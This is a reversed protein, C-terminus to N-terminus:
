KGREKSNVATKAGLSVPCYHMIYYYLLDLSPAAIGYLSQDMDWVMRSGLLRIEILEPLKKPDPPTFNGGRM